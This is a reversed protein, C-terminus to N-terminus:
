ASGPHLLSDSLLCAHIFPHHPPFLSPPFSRALQTHNRTHICRRIICTYIQAREDTAALPPSHAISYPSPPGAHRSLRSGLGPLSNQITRKRVRESCPIHPGDRLGGLKRARLGALSRFSAVTRLSLACGVWFSMTARGLSQGTMISISRCVEILVFQMAGSRGWVAVSTTRAYMDNHQEHGGFQHQRHQSVSSV